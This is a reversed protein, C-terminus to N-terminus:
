KNKKIKRFRFFIRRRNYWNPIFLAASVGTFLHMPATLEFFGLPTPQGDPLDPSLPMLISFITIGIVGSIYLLKYKSSYRILILFLMGALSVSLLSATAIYHMGIIDLSSFETFEYYFQSYGINVITVFLATIITSRLVYVGDPKLESEPNNV